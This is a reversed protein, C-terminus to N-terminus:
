TKDYIIISNRKIFIHALEDLELSKFALNRITKKNEKNSLFLVWHITKINKDNKVIYEKSVGGKVKKDNLLNKMLCINELHIDGETYVM